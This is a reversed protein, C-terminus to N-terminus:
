QTTAQTARPCLLKSVGPSILQWYILDIEFYKLSCVLDAVLRPRGSGSKQLLKVKNVCHFCSYVPM